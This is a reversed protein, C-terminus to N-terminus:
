IQEWTQGGDQSLYINRNFTALAIQDSPANLAIYSFADEGTLAPSPVTTTQGTTLDDAFGLGHIHRFQVDSGTSQPRGLYLLAALGALVIALVVPTRMLLRKTPPVSKRLRSKTTM